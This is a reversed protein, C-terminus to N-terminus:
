YSMNIRAKEKERIKKTRRALPKDIKNNEERFPNKAKRGVWNYRKELEKM